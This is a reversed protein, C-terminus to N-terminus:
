LPMGTVKYSQVKYKVLSLGRWYSQVARYQETFWLSLAMINGHPPFNGFIGFYVLIEKPWGVNIFTQFSKLKWSKVVCIWLLLGTSM